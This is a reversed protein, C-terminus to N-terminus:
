GPSGHGELSEMLFVASTSSGLNDKWHQIKKKSSHSRLIPLRAGFSGCVLIVVRRLVLIPNLENSASESRESLSLKSLGDSKSSTSFSLNMSPFVFAGLLCVPEKLCGQLSIKM